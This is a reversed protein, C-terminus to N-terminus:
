AHRSLDQHIFSGLGSAFRWLESAKRAERCPGENCALLLELMHCTYTILCLDTRRGAQRGAQIDTPQDTQRDTRRDTQMCVYMCSHICVHMFTHMYAPIHIDRSIQAHWPVRVCTIYYSVLHRTTHCTTLHAPLACASAM